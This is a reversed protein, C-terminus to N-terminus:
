KAQQRLKEAQAKISEKSEKPTSTHQPKWFDPDWFPQSSFQGHKQPNMTVYADSYNVGFAKFHLRRRLGPVESETPIVWVAEVLNDWRGLTRDIPTQPQALFDDLWVLLSGRIILDAANRERIDNAPHLSLNYFQADRHHLLYPLAKDRFSRVSCAAAMYVVNAYDIDDSRRLWENLVMAGMSHGVLTIEYPHDPDAPAKADEELERRLRDLLVQMAGDDHKLTRTLRDPRTTPATPATAAPGTTSRKRKRSGPQNAGRIEELTPGDFMVLTRRSMNEWGPQGAHDIVPAFFAKAPTLLVGTVSRYDSDASVGGVGGISVPIATGPNADYDKLLADTLKVVESEEVNHLWRWEPKHHVWADFDASDRNYSHVGADLWVTPARTVARGLDAFAYLPSTIAGWVPDVMRGQRVRFLHEPYSSVIDSEWDIFIPYYGANLIDRYRAYATNLAEKRSTMGGHVFVLIKRKGDAVHTRHWDRMHSFVEDLRQQYRAYRTADSYHESRPDLPDVPVGREDVEIVHNRLPSVTPDKPNLAPGGCGTVLLACVAFPVLRTLPLM